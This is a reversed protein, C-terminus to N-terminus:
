PKLSVAGTGSFPPRDNVKRVDAFGSYESRSEIVTLPLRRAAPSRAPVIVVCTERYKM